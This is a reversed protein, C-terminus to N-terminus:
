TVGLIKYLFADSVKIEEESSSLVYFCNDEQVVKNEGKQFIIFNDSCNKVPFNGECPESICALQVRTIYAGINM